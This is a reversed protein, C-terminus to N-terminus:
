ESGVVVDGQKWDLNRLVTNVGHTANTVMVCEDTGAGILESVRSRVVDLLPTYTVRMFRDPNAEIEQAIKECAAMVPRPISGYSGSQFGIYLTFVSYILLKYMYSAGNNLNLYSTEFCFQKLMSHGFPPPTTSFIHLNVDEMVVSLPPLDTRISSKFVVSKRKPHRYLTHKHIYRRCTDLQSSSM